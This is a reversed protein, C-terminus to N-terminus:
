QAPGDQQYAVHALIRCGLRQQFLDGGFCTRIRAGHPDWATPPVFITSELSAPAWRSPERLWTACMKQFFITEPMKNSVNQQVIRSKEYVKIAISFAREPRGFVCYISATKSSTEHKMEWVMTETTKRWKPRIREFIRLRKRAKRQLFELDKGSM